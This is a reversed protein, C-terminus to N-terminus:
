DLGNEEGFVDNMIQRLHHVENDDISIFIVGDERLLERALVLRPYMFSLWNSHKRGTNKEKQKQGSVDQGEEILGAERLYDEESTAYNDPYIFENQTNYPPDIYICKVRAKYSPVLLKLVHLNDGEIILNETTDLNKGRKEDFKLALKTESQKFALGKAKQKGAWSFCFPEQKEGEYRGAFNELEAKILNGDKDFLNPLLKKLEAMKQEHLNQVCDNFKISENSMFLVCLNSGIVQILLQM